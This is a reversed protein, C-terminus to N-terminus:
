VCVTLRTVTGKGPESLIEYKGGIQEMRSKMNILGNGFERTHSLDFGKGDDIITIVVSHTAIEITLNVHNCWAHKGINNFSEKVTLFINRRTEESLKIDGFTEPYSFKTEIKFPEFFKLAYERIYSALSELTDNRPNLVWIIDQLSDVLERSSQSINELQQRAKEPENMQKKVVESMIAIKTLGSGLDDHMDKSIRNREKEVAQEKEMQILQKRLKKQSLYRIIFGFLAILLLSVLVIFWTTKWFPPSIEFPITIINPAMVGNASAAKLQVTYKGPSLNAYQVEGCNGIYRWGSDIGKLKCFYENHLPNSFDPLAWRFLINQTHYNCKLSTSDNWQAPVDNLLIEELQVQPVEAIASLFKQPNFSTIYNDNGFLMSGDNLCYLTGSMDNSVLGDATTFRRFTGAPENYVVLGNKTCIWWNNKKDPCINYIKKNIENPLEIIQLKPNDENWKLLANSTCCYLFGNKYFISKSSVLEGIKNAFPKSFKGTLRDYLIVGEDLDTMWINGKKDETVSSIVLKKPRNANMLFHDWEEHCKGTLTDMTWIGERWPFIWLKKRSDMFVTTIFNRPLSTSDNKKHQFWQIHNTHTNLKAVGLSTGLWLNTNNQIISLLSPSGGYKKEVTSVNQLAGFDKKKKWNNDYNKLFNESDGGVLISHNWESFVISQNSFNTPFFHHQFFQHQPNYIYLGASSALWLWGDASKYCPFFYPMEKKYSPISYDIFQSTAPNFALLPGDLWLVNKGQPDQAEMISKVVEPSQPNALYHIVKGTNRDLQLLGAGWSGAWIKKNDSEYVYTFLEAYDDDNKKSIEENYHFTKLDFSWLGDASSLWLKNEDKDKILHTLKNCFANGSKKYNLNYYPHFVVNETNFLYLGGDTSCWIEKPSAIYMSNIFVSSGYPSKPPAFSKFKEKKRNYCSLGEDTGIWINGWGDEALSLINNSILTTSDDQRNRFIKISSGDVLNLGDSTGVWVFGRKDKLVCQVHNDSLGNAENISYM